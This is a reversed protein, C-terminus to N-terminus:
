SRWQWRQAELGTPPRIANVLGVIAIVAGFAIWTVPSSDGAGSHGRTTVGPFVESLPVEEEAKRATPRVVAVVSVVILALIVLNLLLAPLGTAPCTAATGPEPPDFPGAAAQTAGSAVTTCGRTRVDPGRAPWRHVPAEAFPSIM